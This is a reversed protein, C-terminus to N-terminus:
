KAVAERAFMYGDHGPYQVMLHKVICRDIAPTYPPGNNAAASQLSNEYNAQKAQEAATWSSSSGCGSFAVASLAIPIAYVAYRRRM